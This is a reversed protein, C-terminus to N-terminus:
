PSGEHLARAVSEVCQAFEVSTRLATKRPYPFPVRVDAVIRGPAPSMVLVREAMFVAEHIQHTVFMATWRQESWLQLVELTLQQRLLDDVAALPEDMLMLRPHTVLARALSVRMQMGGSLMRPLKSWDSAFLGVLQCAQQAEIAAVDSPTGALELPLVVNALVDRWPLLTPHQFVFSTDVGPQSEASLRGSNGEAGPQPAGSSSTSETAASVSVSGQSPQLLGAMLRLVTSKGCGSPGVLSVWTGPEVVFSVDDLAPNGEASFVKRVQRFAVTANWGSCSYEGPIQKTVASRVEDLSTVLKAPRDSRSRIALGTRTPCARSSKGPSWACSM